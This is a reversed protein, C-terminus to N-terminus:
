MGTDTTHAEHGKGELSSQLQEIQVQQQETQVQQLELQDQLESITNAKQGIENLLASSWTYINRFASFLSSTTKM